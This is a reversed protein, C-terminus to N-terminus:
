TNERRGSGKKLCYLTTLGNNSCNECLGRRHRQMANGKGEWMWHSTGSAWECGECDATTRPVEPTRGIFSCQASRQRPSTLLPKGHPKETAAAVGENRVRAPWTKVAFSQFLVCLPSSNCTVALVPRTHSSRTVWVHAMPQAPRSHREPMGPQTPATGTCVTPLHAVGQDM